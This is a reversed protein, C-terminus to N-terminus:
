RLTCPTSIIIDDLYVQVGHGLLDRLVETMFRQFTAPGNCVGFPMVLWEYQGDKTVFATKHIDEERMRIQHYGSALDLATYYRAGHTANLCESILPIPFKEKTTIKNLARYDICMRWKDGQKVLLVGAAYPSSSERIRGLKLFELCQERIIAHEAQSWKYFNSFPIRGM